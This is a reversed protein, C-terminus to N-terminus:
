KINIITDINREDLTVSSGDCKRIDAFGSKYWNVRRAMIEKKSDLIVLCDCKKEERERLVILIVIFLFGFFLLIKKNM